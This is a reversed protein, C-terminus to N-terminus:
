KVRTTNREKAKDNISTLSDVTVTFQEAMKNNGIVASPEEEVTALLYLMYWMMM